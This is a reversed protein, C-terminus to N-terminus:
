QYKIRPDIWSYSIDVLLNTLCVALAILLVGAQLVPFDKGFAAGVILRGMGSINFVQEILVTGGFLIRAQLGMLTVIPILANKLVHRAVVIRNNLGKAMATRIYDQNIIELVSSRTQRALLAIPPVSLCIVPMITQKISRIFDVTPWTFGQIAILHLKFGLLYVGLVGLWFLPIAIGINASLTIIPDIFTGRKTASLVGLAVGLISSFVFSIISLYLTIPFREAFLTTIKSNLMISRGLDGHLANNLWHFYQVIVPRDLWLEKRLNDIQEQSAEGGLMAVVPDGPVLQLLFFSLLTV